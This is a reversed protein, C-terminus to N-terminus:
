KTVIRITRYGSLSDLNIDAVDPEPKTVIGLIFLDQVGDKDNALFVTVEAPVPVNVLQCAKRVALMNDLKVKAQSTIGFVQIAPFKDGVIPKDRQANLNKIADDIAADKTDFGLSGADPGITHNSFWKGPSSLSKGVTIKITRDPKANNAETPQADYFQFKGGPYTRSTKDLSEQIPNVTANRDCQNTKVLNGFHELHGRGASQMETLTKGREEIWIDGDIQSVIDWKGDRRQIKITTSDNM